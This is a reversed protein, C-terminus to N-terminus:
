GRARFALGSVVALVVFLAALAVPALPIDVEDATPGAGSPPRADAPRHEALSEHWPRTASCADDVLEGNVVRAAVLYETGLEFTRDISSAANPDDPGGRVFVEPLLDPGRWIETVVFTATRNQNRLGIVTGVFVVDATALHEDIPPSEACSAHAVSPTLLAVALLALFALSRPRM